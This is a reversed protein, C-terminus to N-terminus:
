QAGRLPASSFGALRVEPLLLVGIRDLVKLQVEAAFDAIERASAGCHSILVLTHRPSIGVTGPIGALCEVGRWGKEVCRDVFDQWDEGGGATVFVNNGDQEFAFGKIRNLIVLGHFGEDSFLINSGAGIIFHFLGKERAFAFAQAAEEESSVETFYRAAGGACFTTFGALSVNERIVISSIDMASM